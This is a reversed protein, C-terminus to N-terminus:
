NPDISEGQSEKLRYRKQPNEQAMDITNQISAQQNIASTERTLNEEINYTKLHEIIARTSSTTV